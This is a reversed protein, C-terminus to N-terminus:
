LLAAIGPLARVCHAALLYITDADGCDLRGKAARHIAESASAIVTIRPREM